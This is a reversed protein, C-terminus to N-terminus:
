LWINYMSVKVRYCFAHHVPVCSAAKHHLHMRHLSRGMYRYGEAARIDMSSSLTRQIRWSNEMCSGVSKRMMRSTLRSSGYSHFCCPFLCAGAIFGSAAVVAVVTILSRPSPPHAEGGIAGSLGKSMMKRLESDMHEPEHSAKYSQELVLQCLRM